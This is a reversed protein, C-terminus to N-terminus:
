RYQRISNFQLINDYTELHLNKSEYYQSSSIGGGVGDDEDDSDIADGGALGQSRSM